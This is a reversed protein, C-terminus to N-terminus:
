RSMVSAQWRSGTFEFQSCVTISGILLPGQANTAPAVWFSVLLGSALRRRQRSRRCDRDAHPLGGQRRGRLSVIAPQLGRWCQIKGFPSCAPNGSENGKPSVTPSSRSVRGGSKSLADFRRVFSLRSDTWIVGAAVERGVVGDTQVKAGIQSLQQLLRHHKVVDRELGFAAPRGLVLAGDDLVELAAAVVRGRVQHHRNGIRRHEEEEIQTM